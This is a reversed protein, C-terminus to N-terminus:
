LGLIGLTVHGEVLGAILLFLLVVPVCKQLPVKRKYNELEAFLAGDREGGGHKRVLLHAAFTVAGAFSIAPIEVVGHPILSVIGMVYSGFLHASTSVTLGSEVGLLIMGLWPVMLWVYVRRHAEEEIVSCGPLFCLLKMKRTGCFARRITQPFLSLNDPNFLPAAYLMSITALAGLGNWAFLVIGNDIGLKAGFDFVPVAYSLRKTSIEFLTEPAVRFIEIFLIGCVFSLGFSLLYAVILRRWASYFLATYSMNAQNERYRDPNFYDLAPIDHDVWQRQIVTM